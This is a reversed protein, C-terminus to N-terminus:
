LFSSLQIGDATKSNEIPRVAIRITFMVSNDIRSTLVRGVFLFITPFALALQRDRAFAVCLYPGDLKM